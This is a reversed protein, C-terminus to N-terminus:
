ARGSGGALEQSRAVAARVAEQFAARVGARELAAHGAATTGAPSTVLARLAQPEAGEELRAAAAELAGRAFALADARPLGAEVGGDVLAEVAVLLWAPASAAVATAAHLHKEDFVERVPGLAGFVELIRPLDRAPVCRESLFVATTSAGVAAGISPMARAAAGPLSATPIGAACSVLVADPGLTLSRALAATAKPKVALVVVDAAAAAAAPDAYIEATASFPELKDPHRDALALAIGQRALGAAMASGLGGVGLIAVKM